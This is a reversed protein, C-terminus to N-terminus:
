NFNLVPSILLDMYLFDRVPNESNASLTPTVRCVITAMSFPFYEGVRSNAKRIALTNLEGSSSTKEKLISSSELYVQIM